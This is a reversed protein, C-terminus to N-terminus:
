LLLVRVEAGAQAGEGDPLFVLGNAAAMGSLVNSAQVGARDCVYRGDDIDVRVRDLHLRGDRKRPMASRTIARVLEPKVDTRGALRRLAPRAFLEFSVRSSVPNGPLGFAPAAGLTAFALPKAPKIAVQSWAYMGGRGKAVRELVVKVFDYDGVSVAGSTILADSSDAAANVAATIAVEDDRVIGGDVPECGAEALLALLMPRNSDRIRGPALDGSTDVLEDGTSVVYVSPRPHCVVDHVDLSALVGVHAASLMTGRAFVQAGREIDGGAARVHDGPRAPEVVVRDDGDLQTREVMVVADAGDPMPAGTMIRIAEGAGVPRTPASGAALEGVVRLRGPTDAARVAYGDMATNAFPPVPETAVVDQALVLGCADRLPFSRPTLPAVADLILAQAHELPIV